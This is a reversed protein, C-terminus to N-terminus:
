RSQESLEGSYKQALKLAKRRNSATADQTFTREDDTHDFGMAELQGAFDLAPPHSFVFLLQKSLQHEALEFGATPARLLIKYQPCSDARPAVRSRSAHNRRHPPHDQDHVM